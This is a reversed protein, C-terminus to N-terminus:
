YKADCIICKNDKLELKNGCVSCHPIAFGNNDYEYTNEFCIDFETKEVSELRSCYQESDVTRFYLEGVENKVRIIDSARDLPKRDTSYFVEIETNGLRYKSYCKFSM